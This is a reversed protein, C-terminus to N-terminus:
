TSVSSLWAFMLQAVFYCPLAWAKTSFGSGKFRQMAVGVDSVIFIVAALAAFWLSHHQGATGFAASAMWVIISVYAMVPRKLRQPVEPALWRYLVAGVPVLLVLAAMAVAFDIGLCFFACIYAIHALGFAIIGALFWRGAAPVLLAIDGILSLTLGVSIWQTWPHAMPDMTLAAALFATSAISKSVARLVPKTRYEAFLLVLMSTVCAAAWPSFTPHQLWAPM